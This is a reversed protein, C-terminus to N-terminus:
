GSTLLHELLQQWPFRYLVLLTFGGGYAWRHLSRDGDSQALGMTLLAWGFGIVPALLYTGAAFVVLLPDRWRALLSKPPSLFAIAILSEVLITLWTLALAITRVEGLLPVEDLTGGPFTLARLAARNQALMGPDVGGARTFFEFRADTLLTFQYFDGAVYDASRLKWLVAFLFCFGILLRAARVLTERNRGRWYAYLAFCWYAILYKHNDATAWDRVCGTLAVVACFFWFGYTRALSPVVLAAIAAASLPLRTYWDNGGYLLLLILTLREVYRRTSADSIPALWRTM